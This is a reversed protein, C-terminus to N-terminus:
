EAGGKLAKYIMYPILWVPFTIFVFAKIIGEGVAQVSDLLTEVFDCLLECCDDFIEIM